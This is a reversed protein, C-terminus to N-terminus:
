KWCKPHTSIKEVKQGFAVTGHEDEILERLKECVGRYDVIGACPVHIAAVGSVYPELENLEQPDIKKIGEIENELGRQYIADLRPLEEEKGAVIVKGCVDIAIDHTQCFDVLQHRGDKCNRAKYSGPKYYIGSHIVGSNRGTQHAAVQTEKELVLISAEPFSRQLKYATSLGVIGAGVLIFDYTKKRM